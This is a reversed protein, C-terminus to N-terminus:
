KLRYLNISPHNFLRYPYKRTGIGGSIYFDTEGIKYYSDFYSKGGDFLFLGGLSPLKILGNFSHGAMALDVSRYNLIEDITDPKHMLSITFIDNNANEEEFYKFSAEVDSNNSDVGTLLIPEKDDKYILDYSNSIDIFGANKIIIQSKEDDEGFVAYKGLTTNINKLQEELDKRENQSINGYILDGTFVVLDPKISNIKKVIKKIKTINVTKSGYNIDSIQIIKLGYFNSPLNEYELSYEKVVLGSTGVYRCTLYILFIIFIIILIVKIVIKTINKTKEITIDSRQKKNKEIRSTM